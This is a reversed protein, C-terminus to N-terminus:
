MFYRFDYPKDYVVLDQKAVKSLMKAFDLTVPMVKYLGDGSNWNMKTLMLIENVLDNVSAKGLFRKVLLPSPIGRGGKYYNRNRGALEDHQVSGHTWLLFTDRDLPIVTGRQIPYSAVNSNQFRIARWASFQQIQLLEIDDVSALGKVIGEIEDKTFHTTKHIVIRSLSNIPISQDYIQKMSSMLRCADQSNMYPNNQIIMPNKLPRLYLKMGNGESDFLQSCGISIKENDKVSQVYSLGVFATDNKVNKPKWLKGVAKTYLATSLGWATKAMDSSKLVSREEVIQTVIGKSACYIKISDHLDFYVSENKVERMKSLTNPIYIILIDFDNRNLEFRDIYKCIGSFFTLADVEDAKDVSYTMYNEKKDPMIINCRYIRQFGIYEPLYDKDTKAVYNNNLSLLHKWIAQVNEKPTLLALRLSNTQYSELPGYNVLGKLQNIAHTNGEYDFTMEPEYVQYCKNIMGIGAFKIRLANFELEADGLKFCIRGDKSLVGIWEDIKDNSNKNYQVSVEVNVANQYEKQEVKTGDINLVHVTPLINLALNNEVYSLAIQIANYVRHGNKIYSNKLDYFKNKGYVTLGNSVLQKKIIEYFMALVDSDDLKMLYQPIELEEIEGIINGAFCKKIDQKNGLSWIQKKYLIAVCRDDTIKRLERWRTITSSFVYCKMPFKLAPLANTMLIDKCIGISNYLLDQKKDERKWLDDIQPNQLNMSLYLRYMLGDFDDIEVIASQENLECALEMFHSATSSLAVAKPQCWYIGKKIGGSKILEELVSMVSKDNGAYGVVIVGGEKIGSKWLDSIRGELQQLENETNKLKDLLFDGHLKIINPFGESLSFGVSGSIASSITNITKGTEVVQLGVKVLDDFNTISVLDIKGCKILEGMCLYGLTPKADRVKQQIYYERDRRTPYCREFYFSYEESSWLQPFGLQGDFYDQIEKQINANSLDGYVNTRLNNASCYLQRKFDWVMHGGSPINSSVSTGAGLLFSMTKDPKVRFSNVFTSIDIKRM